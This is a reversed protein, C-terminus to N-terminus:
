ARPYIIISNSPKSCYLINCETCVYYYGSKHYDGNDEATFEDHTCISQLQAVKTTLIKRLKMLNEEASRIEEKLKEVEKVEVYKRKM